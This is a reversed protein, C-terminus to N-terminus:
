FSGARGLEAKRRLRRGLKSGRLGRRLQLARRQLAPQREALRRIARRSMRALAAATSAFQDDDLARPAEM